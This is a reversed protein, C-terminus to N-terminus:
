LRTILFDQWARQGGSLVSHCPVSAESKSQSCFELLLFSPTWSTKPPKKLQTKQKTGEATETMKCLDQLPFLGKCNRAMEDFPHSVLIARFTNILIGHEPNKESAQLDQPACFCHCCCLLSVQSIHHSVRHKLTRSLGHHEAAMTSSRDLCILIILNPGTEQVLTHYKHIKVIKEEATKM